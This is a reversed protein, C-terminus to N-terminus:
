SFNDLLPSTFQLKLATLVTGHPLSGSVRFSLSGSPSRPCSVHRRPGRHGGVFGSRRAAWQDRFVHWCRAPGRGPGPVRPHNRRTDGPGTPARRHRSAPHLTVWVRYCTNHECSCRAHTCVHPPTLAHAWMGTCNRRGPPARPAPHRGGEWRSRCDARMDAPGAASCVRSCCSRVARTLQGLDVHGHGHAAAGTSNLTLRVRLTVIAGKAPKNLGPSKLPAQGGAAESAAGWPPAATPM